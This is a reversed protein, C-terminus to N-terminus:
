LMGSEDDHFEVCHIKKCYDSFNQHYQQMNKKDEENGHMDTIIQLLEYDYYCVFDCIISFVDRVDKADSLEKMHEKFISANVSKDASYVTCHSKLTLVLSAPSVGRNTMSEILKNQLKLFEKHIALKLEEMQAALDEEEDSCLEGIIPNPIALSSHTYPIEAKDCVNTEEPHNYVVSSLLVCFFFSLIM